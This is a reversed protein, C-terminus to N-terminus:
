TRPKVEKAHPKVQEVDLKLRELEKFDVNLVLKGDMLKQFLGTKLLQTTLTGVNLNKVGYGNAIAAFKAFIKEVSFPEVSNGYAHYFIQYYINDIKSM